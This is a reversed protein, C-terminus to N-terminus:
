PQGKLVPYGNSGMKWVNSFDWLLGAYVSQAPKAGCDEGDKEAAGIDHQASPSGDITIEMSSWALNSDLKAAPTKLGVVRYVDTSGGTSVSPNLAICGTIANDLASASFGAIGGAGVNASPAEAGAPASITIEATSYCRRVAANVQNQGVIGGSNKTGRVFGSSYCDEITSNHGSTQSNYGAIGGTYDGGSVAPNAGIVTGTFYSQSILAGYYNYGAIGGVYPWGADNATVTGTAYCRVIRTNNPYGGGDGVITGAIGGAWAWYGAHEAKINGTSYCDEIKGQYATSM